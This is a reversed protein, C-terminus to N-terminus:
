RGVDALGLSGRRVATPTGGCERCPMKPELSETTQISSM